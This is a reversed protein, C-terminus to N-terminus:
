SVMMKVIFFVILSNAALQFWKLNTIVKSFLYSVLLFGFVIALQAVEIGINFSLLPLLISEGEFFMNKLFNSFGLGHILGFFLLILYFSKFNKATSNGRILHVFNTLCTILITIPILTEILTPNINVWDLGALILTISHGVTFATVLGILKKWDSLSYLLCFSIIFFFHDLGDIDLIHNVGITVYTIFENM